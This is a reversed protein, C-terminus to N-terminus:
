QKKLLLELKKRLIELDKSKFGRKTKELVEITETVAYRLSSVVPCNMLHCVNANGTPESRLEMLNRFDCLGGVINNFTLSFFENFSLFSRSRTDKDILLNTEEKFELGHRRIRRILRHLNAKEIAKQVESVLGELNLPKILYAVVPLQLSDIATRLSPDETVLIAVVGQAIDPLTRILELDQNGPMCIDSVILDYEKNRLLAAATEVNSACDCVYGDRRLLDAISILFCEDADAVLIQNREAM